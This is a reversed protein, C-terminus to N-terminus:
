RTCRPRPMSRSDEAWGRHAPRGPCRGARVAQETAPSRTTSSRASGTPSRSRAAPGATAARGRRAAAEDVPGRPQGGAHQQDAGAPGDRQGSRRMLSASAKRAAGLKPRLDEGGPGGVGARNDYIASDRVLLDGQNYIGGGPGGSGNGGKAGRGGGGSRAPGLHGGAGPTNEKIESDLVPRRRPNGTIEAGGGGSWVVAGRRTRRSGREGIRRRRGAWRIRRHEKRHSVGNGPDPDPTTPDRRGPRSRRRPRKRVVAAARM